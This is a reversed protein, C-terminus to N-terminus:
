GVWRVFLEVVHPYLCPCDGVVDLVMYFSQFCDVGSAYLFFWVFSSCWVSEFERFVLLVGLRGGPFRISSSSVSM